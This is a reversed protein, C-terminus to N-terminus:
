RVPPLGALADRVDAAFRWPDFPKQLIALVGLARLVALEEPMAKATLFMVPLGATDPCARLMALVEPGDMEPMMVDLIVADPRVRLVAALAERGSAAEVVAFGGIRELAMRAVTRMDPEDDVLLIRVLRSTDV